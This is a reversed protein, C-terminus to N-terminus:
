LQKKASGVELKSSGAVQRKAYGNEKNETEELRKESFLPTYGRRL